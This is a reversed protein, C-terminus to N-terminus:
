KTLNFRYQGGVRFIDATADFPGLAEEYFRRNYEAFLEWPTDGVQSRIGGGVEWADLDSGAMFTRAKGGSVYVASKDTIKFGAYLAGAVDAEVGITNLDGFIFPTYDLRAGALVSGAQAECSLRGGLAQGGWGLGTPGPLDIDANAVSGHAGVACSMNTASTVTPAWGQQASVPFTLAAMFALVYILRQMDNVEHKLSRVILAV